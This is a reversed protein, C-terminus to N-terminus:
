KTKNIFAYIKKDFITKSLGNRVYVANAGFREMDQINEM